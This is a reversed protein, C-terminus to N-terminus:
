PQIGYLGAYRLATCSALKVQVDLTVSEYWETLPVTARATGIGDDTVVGHQCNPFVQARQNSCGHWSAPPQLWPQVLRAGHPVAMIALLLLIALRLYLM